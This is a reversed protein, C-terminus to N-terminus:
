SVLLTTSDRVAYRADDRLQLCSMEVWEEEGVELLFGEVGLLADGEETEGRERLRRIRETAGQRGSAFGVPQPALSKSDGAPLGYVTARGFTEQHKSFM